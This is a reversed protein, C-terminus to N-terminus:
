LYLLATGSYEKMPFGRCLMSNRRVSIRPKKSSSSIPDWQQTHINMLMTRSANTVDTVHVGGDVGGTLNYYGHFCSCYRSVTSAVFFLLICSDSSCAGAKILVTCTSNLNGGGERERGGKKGGEREREGLHAM